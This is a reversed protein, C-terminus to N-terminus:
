AAHHREEPHLDSIPLEEFIRTYLPYFVSIAHLVAARDAADELRNMLEEFHQMHAVDLSGHSVMYSMAEAPLDLVTAIQEAAYTAITSSTKELTYVMGFLSVPNGRAISDYAYSVMLETAISPKGHRVQQKDVGLLELDNLIWEQHGIEEEIYHVIAERLWELREPLRSGCAMLLPVTHKVHHYAEVLFAQYTQMEVTGVLCHGVAPTQELRRRDAASHEEILEFFAQNSAEQNLM